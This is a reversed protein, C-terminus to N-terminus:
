YYYPGGWGTNEYPLDVDSIKDLSNIDNAKVMKSSFTYLSDGIYMSRKVSYPGYYGYYYDGTFFEEPYHTIQGRISVGTEPSIDLVYAGQWVTDGYAWEPVGGECDNYEYTECDELYKTENIKAESVPIVVVGRTKDFMFARHDWLADSDTGRDGIEISSVEAPNAVDTVDFLSVKLGQYWSFDGGDDEIAGKGIGILHTEDYPHLYDSYGPMVLEGLIAPSTPNQLDIVFLPDTKQFTVLYLRNGIFRASYISEGQAINELKGVVDMNGNLVSVYNNANTGWGTTTAIRFHGDFEDMSFQNLPRGYVEGAKKYDINGNEIMIKQIYTKEMEKELAANVEMTKNFIDLELQVAQEKTLTDQYDELVSWVETMKEYDETDSNRIAEIEAKVSEPIFPYLADEFMKDMIYENSLTKQYTLYINKSSVYMNQTYGTLYVEDDYAGSNDNVDFSFIMTYYYSYDPMDFYYVEEAQIKKEQGGSKVMPMPVVGDEAVMASDQAIFYVYDGIMRSNYYWGDVEMENFLIPNTRDAVNYVMAVSTPGDCPDSEEGYYNYYCRPQRSLFVVLKDGNIYIESPTEYYSDNEIFSIESVIQMQDAPYADVIVVKDGDVIYFYDGDSKVIDAEDVGEVQINTTSYDSTGDNKQGSDYNEESGTAMPMGGTIGTTVDRIGGGYYGYSGGNEELFAALEAASSFQKRASQDDAVASPSFLIVVSIGAVFLATLAALTIEQSAM